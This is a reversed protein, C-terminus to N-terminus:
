PIRADRQLYLGVAGYGKWVVFTGRARPSWFRYGEATSTYLVGSARLNPDSVGFAELMKRADGATAAWVPSVPRIELAIHEPVLESGGKFFWQGRRVRHAMIEWQASPTAVLIASMSDSSVVKISTRPLDVWHARAYAILPEVESVRRFEAGVSVLFTGLLAIFAAAAFALRRSRLNTVAGLLYFGEAVPVLWFVMGLPVWIVAGQLSGSRYNGLFLLALVYGIFCSVLTGDHILAAWIAWRRRRWLGCGIVISPLGICVAPPLGFLLLLGVIPGSASDLRQGSVLVLEGLGFPICCVLGIMLRLIGLPVLFSRDETSGSHATNEQLNPTEL